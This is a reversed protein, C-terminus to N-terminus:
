CVKRACEPGLGAHISTPVTLVRNCRWCHGSALSYALGAARAREPNLLVAAYTALDSDAFRKWVNVRKGDASLFAFSQFEGPGCLFDILTKGTFAGQKPTHIRLTRYDGNMVVTFIGEIPASPASTDLANEGDLATAKCRTVKTEHFGMRRRQHAQVTGSLHYRQGAEMTTTKTIWVLCHGADDDMFVLLCRGYAGDSEQIMTVTVDATFKEGIEGFFAKGRALAIEQQTM